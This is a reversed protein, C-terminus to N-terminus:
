AGVTVGSVTGQWYAHTYLSSFAKYPWFVQVCGNSRMLVLFPNLFSCPCLPRGKPLIVVM